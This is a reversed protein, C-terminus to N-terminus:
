FDQTSCTFTRHALLGTFTMHAVPLRGTHSLYFDQTSYTFTNDQCYKTCIVAVNLSKNYASICSQQLQSEELVAVQIEMPFFGTQFPIPYM